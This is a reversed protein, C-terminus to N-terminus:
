IKMIFEPVFLADNQLNKFRRGRMFKKKKMTTYTRCGTSIVNFPMVM